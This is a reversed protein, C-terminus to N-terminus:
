YPSYFIEAHLGMKEHVWFEHRWVIEFEKSIDSEFSYRAKDPEAIMVLMKEKNM